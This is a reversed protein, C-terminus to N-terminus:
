LRVLLNTPPALTCVTSNLVSFLLIMVLTVISMLTSIVMFPYFNSSTIVKYFEPNGRDLFPVRKVSIRILIAEVIAATALNLLTQRPLVM